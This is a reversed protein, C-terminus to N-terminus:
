KFHINLGHAFAMYQGPQLDDKIEDFIHRIKTDPATFMIVDAWSVADKISIVEFGVEEAKQRSKSDPPLVIKVNVGSDRLNQAHAHGQSGYGVVAVCKDKIFSPDADDDYYVKAPANM